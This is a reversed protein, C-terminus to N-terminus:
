PNKDDAYGREKLAPREVREGCRCIGRCGYRDLWNRRRRGKSQHYSDYCQKNETGRSDYQNANRSRDHLRTFTNHVLRGFYDYGDDRVM